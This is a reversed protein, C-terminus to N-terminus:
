IIIWAMIMALGLVMWFLAHQVLGTQLQLLARGSLRLGSAIGETLLGWQVKEIIFKELVERSVFQIPRVICCEVLGEAILGDTSWQRLKKFRTKPHDDQKRSIIFTAGAAVMLSLLTALGLVLHATFGYVESRIPLHDEFVPFWFRHLSGPGYFVEPIAPWTALALPLSFGVLIILWRLRGLKDSGSEVAGASRWFIQVVLRSAAIATMLSAGTLLVWTFYRQQNFAHWIIEYRTFFGPFPALGILSVVAIIALIRVHRSLAVCLLAIAGISVTWHSLGEPVGGTGFAAIAIAVQSWALLSVTRHSGTQFCAFLAAMFASVAGVIELGLLAWSNMLTLSHIRAVYYLGLLGFGACLVWTLVTLSTTDLRRLWFAFPWALTILLPPILLYWLLSRSIAGAQDALSAFSLVIKADASAEISLLPLLGVMAIILAGSCLQTLWLLKNDRFHWCLLFAIGEWGFIFIPLSEAWLATLLFFLGANLLSTDRAMREPKDLLWLNMFITLFAAIVSFILTMPDIWFTLDFEGLETHFWDTYPGIVLGDPAGDTMFVILGILLISILPAGIASSVVVPIARGKATGDSALAIVANIAASILPALLVILTLDNISFGFLLTSM